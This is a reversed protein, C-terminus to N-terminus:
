GGMESCCANRGMNDLDDRAMAKFTYHAVVDM